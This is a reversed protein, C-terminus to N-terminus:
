PRGLDVRTQDLLCASPAPRFLVWDWALDERKPNRFGPRTRRRVLEPSSADFYGGRLAHVYRRRVLEELAQDVETRDVSALWMKRLKRLITPATSKGAVALFNRVSIAVTSEHFGTAM